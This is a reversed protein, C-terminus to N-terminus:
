FLGKSETQYLFNLIWSLIDNLFSFSSLKRVLLSHSVKDFAKSFDLVTAQVCGGQDIEKMISQTMTLLQTTCSLGKRFGHQQPLLIDNLRSSMSHLFIHEFMKCCICTLSVPRYNAASIKSGSKYIPVVNARKWEMPLKGIDLSYQFIITLISSVEEIALCLDVKRLGDPGPAKGSKLDCMLKKVGEKTVTITSSSFIM